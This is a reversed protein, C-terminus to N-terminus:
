YTLEPLEALLEETTPEARNGALVDQQIARATEWVDINWQVIAMCFAFHTYTNDITYKMISNIDAFMVGNANNYDDIKSQIYSDITTTFTNIKQEIEQTQKKTLYEAEQEAITKLVTVGDEDLLDSTFMPVVKWKQVTNGKADTTVGDRQVQELEGCTPKPTPFVVSAGDKTFDYGKPLSVGKYYTAVLERTTFEKNDRYYTTSM